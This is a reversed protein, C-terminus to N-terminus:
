GLKRELEELKRKLEDIQTQQVTITMMIRVVSVINMGVVVALLIFAVNMEGSM